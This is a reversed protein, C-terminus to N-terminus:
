RASRRCGLYTANALRQPIDGRALHGEVLALVQGKHETTTQWTCTERPIFAIAEITWEDSRLAHVGAVALDLVFRRLRRRQPLRLRYAYIEWARGDPGTVRRTPRFVSV